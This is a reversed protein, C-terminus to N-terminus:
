SAGCADDQVSAHFRVRTPYHGGLMLQTAHTRLVTTRLRGLWWKLGYSYFVEEGADIPRCAVAFVGCGAGNGRGAAAAAAAAKALASPSSAQSAQGTSGAPSDTLAETSAQNTSTTAGTTASAAASAAAAATDEPVLLLAKAVPDSLAAAASADVCGLPVM